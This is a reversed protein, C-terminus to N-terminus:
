LLARQQLPAPARPPSEDCCFLQFSLHISAPQLPAGTCLATVGPRRQRTLVWTIEAMKANMYKHLHLSLVIGTCVTYTAWICVIYNERILKVNPDNNFLKLSKHQQQQNVLVIVLRKGSIQRMCLKLNEFVNEHMEIVQKWSQLAINHSQRKRGLFGTFVSPYFISWWRVLETSVCFM